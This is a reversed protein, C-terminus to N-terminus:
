QKKEPLSQVKKIEEPTPKPLFNDMLSFILFPTDYWREITIKKKLFDSEGFQMILKLTQEQDLTKLYNLAKPSNEIEDNIILKNIKHWYNIDSNEKAFIFSIPIFMLFIFLQM